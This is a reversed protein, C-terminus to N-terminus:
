DSDSSDDSSVEYLIKKGTIKRYILQCIYDLLAVIFNAEYKNVYSFNVKEEKGRETPIFTYPAFCKLLPKRNVENM